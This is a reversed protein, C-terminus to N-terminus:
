NIKKLFVTVNRININKKTKSQKYIIIEDFVLKAQYNGIIGEAELKPVYINNKSSTQTSIVKLIYNSFDLETKDNLVLLYKPKSNNLDNIIKFEDGNVSIVQRLNGWEGWNIMYDYGVIEYFKSSSIISYNQKLNETTSSSNTFESSIDNEITYKSKDKIIEAIKTQQKENILKLIFAQENRIALFSIKDKIEDVIKSSIKQKFNIKGNELLKNKILIETLQSKQSRKAVSFANLYPFVIAFLAFCFLSIPIFKITSKKFIIHYLVVSTLWLALLLVIYRLETYGYELIRTFIAIFLLVLLPVLAFYFIKSFIKVWSKSTEQKLPHVLLLAFIGVVSYALILYSVWGRPLEWNILIKAAYFYLIIAYILLLPILIFQTFFKLVVPYEDEKELDSLGHENFLLFIFTSGFIGFIYFVENYTKYTIDFDFLNAVALIALEIGGVLVATFVATQFINIFLHENFNWFRKEHNQKLFASFSVLLHSLLFVIFMLIVYVETFDKESNPLIFYLIALIIVGSIELLWWKGVRQSAMKIGFFLSIGLLSLLLIKVLPFDESNYSSIEMLTIASLTAIFSMVLVMPYQSIVERAKSFINKIKINM